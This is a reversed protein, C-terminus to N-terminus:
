ETFLIGCLLSDVGCSYGFVEGCKIRLERGRLAPVAVNRNEQQSRIQRHHRHHQEGNGEDHPRQAAGAGPLPQQDAPAREHEGEAALRSVCKVARCVAMGSAGHM